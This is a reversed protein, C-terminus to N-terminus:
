FHLVVTLIHVHAIKEMEEVIKLLILLQRCNRTWLLRRASILLSIYIEYFLHKTEVSKLQYFVVFM